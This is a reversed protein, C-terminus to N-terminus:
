ENLTKQIVQAAGSVAGSVAGGIPNSAIAAGKVAQTAGSIVGKAVGKGTSGATAVQRGTHAVGNTMGKTSSIKEPSNVLLGLTGLKKMVNSEVNKYKKVADDIGTSIKEVEIMSAVFADEFAAMKDRYSEYADGCWIKNNDLKDVIDKAKTSADILEKKLNILRSQISIIENYKVKISSSM